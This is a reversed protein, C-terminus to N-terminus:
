LRRRARKVKRVAITGEEDDAEYSTDDCAGKIKSVPIAGKEDDAEYNTDDHLRRKNSVKTTKAEEVPSTMQAALAECDEDTELGAVEAHAVGRLHRFCRTIMDSAEKPITKPETQGVSYIKSEFTVNVKISDIKPLAILANIASQLPKEWESYRVKLNEKIEIDLYFNTLNAKIALPHGKMTFPGMLVEPSAFPFLVKCIKIPALNPM